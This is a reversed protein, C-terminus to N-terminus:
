GRPAADTRSNVALNVIVQEIQGPDAKVNWLDKGGVTALDIDEGILRRLMHDVETVVEGLSIVKPVLIQKRSFALLQRTLTACRDSAKRIEELDGRLPDQDGVRSLAMDCYGITVTLLNNFDHAIGGALRGVAEMKQAQLYQLELQKRATIDVFSVLIRSLGGAEDRVPVANVLVWVVADLDPRRIRRDPGTDAAWTM